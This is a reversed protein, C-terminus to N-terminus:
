KFYIDLEDILESIRLATVVRLLRVFTILL